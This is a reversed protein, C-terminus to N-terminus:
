KNCAFRGVDFTAGFANNFGRQIIEEKTVQVGPITGDFQPRKIRSGTVVVETVTQAPAAEQAHAHGGLVAAVAAGTLLAVKM